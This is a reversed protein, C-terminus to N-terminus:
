LKLIIYFHHILANIDNGNFHDDNNSNQSKKYSVKIKQAIMEATFIKHGL